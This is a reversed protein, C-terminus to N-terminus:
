KVNVRSERVGEMSGTLDREKEPRISQTQDVATLCRRYPPIPPSSPARVANWAKLFGKIRSRKGPVL